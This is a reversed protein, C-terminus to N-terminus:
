QTHCQARLPVVHNRAPTPCLLYGTGWGELFFPSCTPLVVLSHSSCSSNCVKQLPSGPAEPLMSSICKASHISPMRLNLLLSGVGNPSKPAGREIRWGLPLVTSTNTLHLHGVVSKGLQKICGLMIERHSVRLQSCGVVAKVKITHAYQQMPAPPQADFTDYVKLTIGMVVTRCEGKDVMGLDMRYLLRTYVTRTQRPSICLKGTPVLMDADEFISLQMPMNTSASVLLTKGSTNVIQLKKVKYNIDGLYCMGFDLTDDVLDPFALPNPRLPQLTVQVDVKSKKNGANQVTFRHRQVRHQSQGPSPVTCQFQITASQGKELFGNTPDFKFKVQAVWLSVCAQASQERRPSQCIRSLDPRYITYARPSSKWDPQEKM